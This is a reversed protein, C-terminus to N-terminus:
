LNPENEPPKQEEEPTLKIDSSKFLKKMVINLMKKSGVGLGKGKLYAANFKTIEEPTAVSRLDKSKKSMNVFANRIKERFEQEPMDDFQDAPFQRITLKLFMILIDDHLENWEPHEEKIMKCISKYSEPDIKKRNKLGIKSKFKTIASM